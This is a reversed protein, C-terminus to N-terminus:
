PQVWWAGAGFIGGTNRDVSFYVKALGGRFEFMFDRYKPPQGIEYLFRSHKTVQILQDVDCGVISWNSSTARATSSSARPAFYWGLLANYRDLSRPNETMLGDLDRVFREMTEKCAAANAAREAADTQAAAPGPSDIWFCAFIALLALWPLRRESRINEQARQLRFYALGLMIGSAAAVVCVMVLIILTALFPRM